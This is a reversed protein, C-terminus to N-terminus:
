SDPMNGLLSASLFPAMANLLCDGFCLRHPATLLSGPLNLISSRHYYVHLTKVPIPSIFDQSRPFKTMAFTVIKMQKLGM